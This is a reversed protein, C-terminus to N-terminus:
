NYFLFMCQFVLDSLIYIQKQAYALIQKYFITYKNKYTWVEAVKLTGEM